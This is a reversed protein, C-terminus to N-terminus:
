GSRRRRAGTRGAPKRAAASERDSKDAAGARQVSRKLAETFDIVKGRGEDLEEEDVPVSKGGKVKSRVLERLAEAYHNKFATPDFPSSRQRILDKAMHILDQRLRSSGVERFVEDADKIEDAYRLAELMMGKGSPKLAVLNERGRLTLQGIGVKKEERLADRIVRYGEGADEGDPLLYYPRDFYLPDIECADVFQVLEITHRTALKLHDLEEDELLVYNGPEVEYGHVIDEREVPGVSPAVKEYRIRQKSERHVQHFRIEKEKELATLLRVPISVLALRLQGKWFTRIKEAM